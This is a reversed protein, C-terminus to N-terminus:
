VIIIIIDLCLSIIDNVVDLSLFCWELWLSEEKQAPRSFRKSTTM